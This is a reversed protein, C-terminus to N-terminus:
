EDDEDLGLEVDEPLEVRGVAETHFELDAFGLEDRPMMFDMILEPRRKKMSDSDQPVLARITARGDLTVAWSLYLNSVDDPGFMSEQANFRHRARSRAATEDGRRAHLLRANLRAEPDSLLLQGNNKTSRLKYSPLETRALRLGLHVRILHTREYGHMPELGYEEALHRDTRAAAEELEDHLIPSLSLLAGPVDM